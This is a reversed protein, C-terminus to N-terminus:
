PPLMPIPLASYIPRVLVGLAGTVLGIAFLILIIKVVSFSRKALFYAVFTLLLPVVFLSVANVIQLLPDTEALGLAQVPLGVQVAIPIFAGITTLGTAGTLEMVRKLGTSESMQKAALVGRRLGIRWFWFRLIIGAPAMIVWLALVGIIDGRGYFAMACGIVMAIVGVVFYIISDGIGALPGMYGLKVSRITETPVGADEMKANMGLIWSAVFPNTNFFEMHMKMASRLDGKRKHTKKLIPLMSYLYGLGQMREYNWSAEYSLFYRRFTSSLDKQTIKKFEIAEKAEAKKRKQTTGPYERRVMIWALGLGITTAVLVPNLAAGIIGSFPSMVIMLWCIVFGIVFFKRMRRFPLISLIVALGAAPLVSGAVTLGELFWTTTLNRLLGIAPLGLVIATPCLVARSLGWPIFGLLHSTQIGKTEDKAVIREARHVWYINATRALIELQVGLVAVIIAYPIVYIIVENAYFTALDGGTYLIEAMSAGVIAASTQDPPSAGGIPIAAILTIQIAAGTIVAVPLNGFILGVFASGILALAALSVKPGVGDIIAVFGLIAILMLQILTLEMIQERDRKAL